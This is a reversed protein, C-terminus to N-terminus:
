QLCKELFIKLDKETIRWAKGIKYAKLTGTRIKRRVVESKIKLTSAVEEVTMMSEM